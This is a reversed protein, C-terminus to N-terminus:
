PRYALEIEDLTSADGTSSQVLAFVEVYRGTGSLTAPSSGSIATWSGAAGTTGASRYWLSLAGDTPATLVWSLRVLESSSGLDFVYSLATQRASVASTHATSLYYVEDTRAAWYGSDDWGGVQYLHGQWSAVRHYYVDTSLTASSTGWTGLTGTSGIAAYYVNDTGNGSSDRGGAAVLYGDLVAVGPCERAAPLSPETTWSSITGTIGPAASYVTTSASGTSTEGGAVYIRGGAVAVGLSARAAPLYGTTSWSDISCDPDLRAYSVTGTATTGYGGRVLGGILYVYGRLAAGAVYSVGTSLSTQATWTGITGDGNLEATYVEEATSDASTYGGALVLCHGDSMV